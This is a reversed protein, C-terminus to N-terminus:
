IENRIAHLDPDLKAMERFSKDLRFSARLYAKAQDLNGLISEYCALNYYYTPEDLLSPPGELLTKKAEATHGLEHLCFAMHIHGYAATPHLKSFNASLRLATKWQRERMKIDIRMRLTEFRDQESAPLEDLQAWAEAYMGLEIYGEAASLERECSM